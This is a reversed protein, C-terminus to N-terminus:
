SSGFRIAATLLDIRANASAFSTLGHGVIDIFDAVYDLGGLRHKFAALPLVQRVGILTVRNSGAHELPSTRGTRRYSVRTAHLRRHGVAVLMNAHASDHIRRRGLLEVVAFHRPRSGGDRM